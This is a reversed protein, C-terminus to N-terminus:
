YLRMKARVCHGGAGNRPAKKGTKTIKHLLDFARGRNETGPRANESTKTHPSNTRGERETPKGCAACRWCRRGTGPASPMPPRCSRHEPEPEPEPEPQAPAAPQQEPQPEPEPAPPDKPRTNWRIEELLDVIEGVAYILGSALATGFFILVSLFPDLEIMVFLVLLVGCVANVVAYAKLFAAAKNKQM